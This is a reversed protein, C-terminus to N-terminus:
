NIPGYLGNRTQKNEEKLRLPPPPPLALWINCWSQQSSSAYQNRNQIIKPHVILTPWKTGNYLGGFSHFQVFFLFLVSCVLEASFLQDYEVCQGVNAISRFRWRMETLMISVFLLNFHVSLFIVKAWIKRTSHLIAANSPLFPFDRHNWHFLQSFFKLPM